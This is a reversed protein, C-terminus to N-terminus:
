LTFKHRLSIRFYFDESQNTIGSQSTFVLVQLMGLHVMSYKAPRLKGVIAGISVQMKTWRDLLNKDAESLPNKKKEEEEKKKEKQAARELRKKRKEERERQREAATVTKKVKDM